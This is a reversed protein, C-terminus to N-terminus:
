ENERIAEEINLYEVNEFLQKIQEVCNLAIAIKTLSALSIQGITEFRKISGLSVGSMDALMEQTINRRKRLNRVRKALKILIEDLTEWQLAKMGCRM